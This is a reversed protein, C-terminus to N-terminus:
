CTLLGGAVRQQFRQLRDGADDFAPVRQRDERVHQELLLVAPEVDRRGIELHLDRACESSGPLSACAVVTAARLSCSRRRASGSSAVSLTSMAPLRIVTRAPRERKLRCVSAPPRSGACRGRGPAAAPATAAASAVQARQELETSNAIACCSM